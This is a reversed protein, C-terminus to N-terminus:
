RRHRQSVPELSRCDSRRAAHRDPAHRAIPDAISARLGRAGTFAGDVDVILDADVSSVFCASGDAALPAVVANPVTQGAVFNLNSAVPVAEDCAYVTVFGTAVADTVTVNLLAASASAPVSRVGRSALTIPVGAAVKRGGRTDLIRDPTIARYGSGAPFWGDIDIVLDLAQSAFVCVKGNSGVKSVVVNPVTSATTFNLNSAAPRNAGCPFVTVFGPKRTRTVTVNLVVADPIGGLTSANGAVDLEFTQEASVGPRAAATARRSAHPFVSVAAIVLLIALKRSLRM